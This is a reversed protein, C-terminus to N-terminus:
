PPGMAFGAFRWTGNERVLTGAFPFKGAGFAFSAIDWTGTISAVAEGVNVSAFTMISRAAKGWVVATNMMTLLYEPRDFVFYEGNLTASALCCGRERCCDWLERTSSTLLATEWRKALGRVAEADKTDEVGGIPQITLSLFRMSGGPGDATACFTALHQVDGPGRLQVQGMRFIGTETALYADDLEIGEGLVFEAALDPQARLDARNCILVGADRELIVLSGQASLLEWLPPSGTSLSEALRRMLAAVPERADPAPVDPPGARLADLLARRTSADAVLYVLGRAAERPAAAPNGWRDYCRVGDPIAHPLPEADPGNAHLVIVTSPAVAFDRDEPQAFVHASIDTTPQLREEYQAGEVFHALAAVALHMPRLLPGPELMMHTQLGHRAANHISYAMFRRHGAAIAGLFLRAYRDAGESWDGMIRPDAFSFLSGHFLTVDPGGESCLLPKPVGYKAQEANIRRAVRALSDNPWAHLNPDYRHWSLMDYYPYSGAALVMQEWFPPYTDVGVITCAPNVAKAEEYAARLLEAYLMPTGGHFFRMMDWPENWVEWEDIAGAYHGVVQRVYNRWHEVNRPAGYISWYGSTDTGSEWAPSGDLMGLISLGVDRAAAVDADFWRWQGPEPEAYGWKTIGSADHIRCWKYGLAAAVRVDPDRLSVHVGFPSAPRPGPIPAPARALLTEGVASLAKGAADIVVAEVRHMGLRHIAEGGITLTEQWAGGADVPVEPLIEPAGEAPVVRWQLRCGDQIVGAVSAHIMQPTAGTVLGWAAEPTITVAAPFVPPRWGPPPADANPGLWLADMWLVADEGHLTLRAFYQSRTVPPLVGHFLLPRWEPGVDDMEAHLLTDDSANACVDLRASIAAAARLWIVATFSRGPELVRAPSVLEIRGNGELTVSCCGPGFPGPTVEPRLVANESRLLWGAPIGAGMRDIAIVGDRGAEPSAARVVPACLVGAFLLLVWSRM